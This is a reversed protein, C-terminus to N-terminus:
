EREMDIALQTLAKSLQRCIDALSYGTVQAIEQYTKGEIRHMTLIRQQKESLQAISNEVNNLQRQSLLMAEPDSIQTPMEAQPEQTLYKEATVEKRHEDIVQNHALRYLYAKPNEVADQDKMQAFKVFANQVADETDVRSHYFKQKLIACLDTWHNRYIETLSHKKSPRMNLTPVSTLLSGPGENVPPDDENISVALNHAQSTM